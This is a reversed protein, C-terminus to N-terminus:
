NLNIVEVTASFVSDLIRDDRNGIYNHQTFEAFALLDILTSNADDVNTPIFFDDVNM